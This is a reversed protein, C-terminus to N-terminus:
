RARHRSRTKGQARTRDFRTRIKKLAEYTAEPNQTTVRQNGRVSQLANLIKDRTVGARNLIQSAKSEVNALAILMAETTVYEDKLGDAVSQSEDLVRSTTRALGVQVAGGYAKALKDIESKAQQALTEPNAGVARVVQPVVGDTQNLLALLLHEPEVTSNSQEQALAIAAQLAEAAKETLKNPNFAM